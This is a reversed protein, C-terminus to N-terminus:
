DPLNEGLFRRMNEGMVKRIDSESIGADLLAQTILVLESTDFATTVSGDFDSGLSVHESGVLNIGYNIAEAIKGPSNGCIAGDWYGVAILGGKRAIAQMLEDGINRPSDCHGKFGTHSVVLPRESIALVDEAVRESSHSVDIIIGLAHMKMVAQRGFESLGSQSSGHLSGGLKNDFFHQLSMMRFGHDFLLQINELKGDLAHSGETGILGGVLGPKDARDQFFANLDGKSRILRFKQPQHEALQHIKKAQFIARATLSRWTAVPWLQTIALRTINDSASTENYQYNQGAPSKTVTTFMQIAVNGKQLRPIDVHGRAAQKALDRKWLTSDAHWDGIILTKHLEAARVASTASKHGDILNM